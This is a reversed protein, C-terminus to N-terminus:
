FNIQNWYRVLQHLVTRVIHANEPDMRKIVSIFVTYRPSNAPYYGCFDQIYEVNNDWDVNYKAQNTNMVWGSVGAINMKESHPDSDKEFTEEMIKKIDRINEEKTIQNRIITTQGKYLQPSIMTGGNAIANYFTLTQLPSVRQDYGISIWALSAKHWTNSGPIPLFAPELTKFDPSKDPQGYGMKELQNLFAQPNNCFAFKVAKYVAINSNFLLGEKYTIKGYGGNDWNHDKLVRGSISYIDNGVDVTDSLKIKDTELAALVSIPKMLGTERSEGLNNSVQHNLSDRRNIQVIAKIEGTKTEMIVIQGSLANNESLNSKLLSSVEIQLLSDITSVTERNKQQATCISFSLICISIIIIITQKM